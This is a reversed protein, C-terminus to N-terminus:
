PKGMEGVVVVVLRERFSGTNVSWAASDEQPKMKRRLAATGEAL